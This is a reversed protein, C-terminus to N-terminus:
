NTSFDKEILLNVWNDLSVGMMTFRYTQDPQLTPTSTSDTINLVVNDLEYFTFSQDFTYTGSILNGEADSIVQFYIANEDILGDQWNFTPHVGNEEIQVLSPNIETAKNNTKQRIPNCVHLKGPTRYTVIGQKEGDFSPNLFRRLYGNFVPIDELDKRIYNTFDDPADILESEFYRFDYAGEIPYFFISTPFDTEGLFGTPDGGACAILEDLELNEHSAIYDALISENLDPLRDKTCGLTFSLIIIFILYRM